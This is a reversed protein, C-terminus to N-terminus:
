GHLTEEWRRGQQERRGEDPGLALGPLEDPDGVARVGALDEIYEKTTVEVDSDTYESHDTYTYEGAESRPQEVGNVFLVNDKLDIHDGPLGVRLHRRLRAAARGPRATRRARCPSGTTARSMFKRDRTVPM